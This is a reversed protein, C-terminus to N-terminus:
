MIREAFNSDNELDSVKTPIEEAVIDVKEAIQNDTQEKTYYESLDPKLGEKSLAVVEEDNSIALVRSVEDIGLTDVNLVNLESM